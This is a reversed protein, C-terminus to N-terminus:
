RRSPRGSAVVYCCRCFEYTCNAIPLTCNKIAEKIPMKKRNWARCNDCADGSCQIQVYRVGERELDLLYKKNDAVIRKRLLTLKKQRRAERDSKKKEVLTRQQADYEAAGQVTYAKGKRTVIKKGCHPCKRARAPPVPLGLGCYPCPPPLPVQNTLGCGPCKEDFGVLCSPSEMSSGCHTCKYRIM